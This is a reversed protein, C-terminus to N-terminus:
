VEQHQTSELFLRELMTERNRKDKEKNIGATPVSPSAERNVLTIWGALRRGMERERPSPDDRAIPKGTSAFFPLQDITIPDKEPRPLFILGAVALLVVAAAALRPYFRRRSSVCPAAPRVHPAMEAWANAKDDEILRRIDAWERDNSTKM